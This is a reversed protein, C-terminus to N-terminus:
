KLKYSIILSQINTARIQDCANSQLQINLETFGDQLISGVNQVASELSKFGAIITARTKRSEWISAFQFNSLGQRVLKEYKSVLYTLSSPVAELFFFPPFNTLDSTSKEEEYDHKVKVSLGWILFALEEIVQASTEIAQWFLSYANNSYEKEAVNLQDYLKLFASNIVSLIADALGLTINASYCRDEHEKKELEIERERRKHNGTLKEWTTYKYNNEELRRSTVYPQKFNYKRPGKMSNYIRSSTAYNEFRHGYLRYKEGYKYIKSDLKRREVEEIVRQLGYETLEYGKAM